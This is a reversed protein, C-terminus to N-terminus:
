TESIHNHTAMGGYHVSFCSLPCILTEGDAMAAAQKKQLGVLWNPLHHVSFKIKGLEDSHLSSWGDVTGLECVGFVALAQATHWRGLGGLIKRKIAPFETTLSILCYHFDEHVAWHPLPALEM